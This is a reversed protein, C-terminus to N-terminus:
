TPRKWSVRRIKTQHHTFKTSSHNKHHDVNLFSTLCIIELQNVSSDSMILHNTLSSYLICARSGLATWYFERSYHVPFQKLYYKPITIPLFHQSVFLPKKSPTCAFSFQFSTQSLDLPGHFNISSQLVFIQPISFNRKFISLVKYCFRLQEGSQM